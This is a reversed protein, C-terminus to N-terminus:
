YSHMDPWVTNNHNLTLPEWVKETLAGKSSLPDNYVFFVVGQRVADRESAARRVIERERKAASTRKYGSGSHPPKTRMDTERGGTQSGSTSTM